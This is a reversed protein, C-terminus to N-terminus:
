SNKFKFKQSVKEFSDTLTPKDIGLSIAEVAALELMEAVIKKRVTLSLQSKIESVFAGAGPRTTIIGARELYRYSKAITNPNIVIQQALDRVTPLKDSPRLRGLAIEKKVADIIQQYVARDSAQNIVFQM